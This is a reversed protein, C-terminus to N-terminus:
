IATVGNNEASKLGKASVVIKIEGPFQCKVIAVAKGGFTHCKNTGYQDDNSPNGSFIGLLKGGFVKCEIEYEADPILKRNEDEVFIDYYCLDRNDAIIETRECAIDLKYAKCVTEIAFRTTEEGNKYAVAILIGKQYPIEASAIGNLPTTKAIEKGNLFFIIEDETSYVETKVPKGVYEDDFTWTESVDYWHWGTGSFIDGNHKPHTTFIHPSTNNKWIAERFYSQPRRFGCLDFDGQYCSRWPYEGLSIGNIYGEEGWLFRGTGAEGLNDYATWTFDGIVNKHNMVENWSHYFNLVHTESGWIVRKPYKKSDSDYQKYLYNYGVIDLPEMFKETNEQWYDTGDPKIREKYEGPAHPNPFINWAMCVGSTVLKTNDYKRIEDTLKKAWMYGGSNGGREPIENGISYSIVSPHNRDRLVMYSIDRQWWDAFWLSYDMQNKPINWMDFAEDMVLLGLRDCEELFTLSPPYHATRVANYGAYKLLSLKRHVAAPYEASGLVGHDHHICGGKLKIEKGNLMLGTDSSALVTRIGFTIESEDETTGNVIIRAKLTYLNPNDCDWLKPNDIMIVENNENKGKSLEYTFNQHNVHEDNDYIEFEISANCDFDANVAFKVSIVANKDKLEKTSVFLDWPEIRVRGGTWLYVDRYVGSGSYWRTSPQINLVSVMIKNIKGPCAKDSLDVLYPTYGHPHMAIQDDNFCIRACMYAGDIDLITHPSSDFKMYKTYVGSNGNFFGNAAGGPANSTRPITIMYDHPLDVREEKGAGSFFWDRSICVKKM